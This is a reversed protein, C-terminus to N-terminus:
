LFTVTDDKKIPAWAQGQFFVKSWFWCQCSSCRFLHIQHTVSLFIAIQDLSIWEPWDAVFCYCTRGVVLWADFPADWKAASPKSTLHKWTGSCWSKLLRTLVKLCNLSRARSNGFCSCRVSWFTLSNLCVSKIVFSKPLYEKTKGCLCGLICCIMEKSANLKVIGDWNRTSQCFNALTNSGKQFVVHMNRKWLCASFVWLSRCIVIDNHCLFSETSHWWCCHVHWHRTSWEDNARANHVCLFLLFHHQQMLDWDLM